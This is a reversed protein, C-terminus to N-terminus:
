PEVRLFKGPRSPDPVYWQGDPAKRAQSMDPGAAAAPAAPAPAPAPSAPPAATPPAAPAPVAATQPQGGLMYALTEDAARRQDEPTKYLPRGLHDTAKQAIVFARARLDAPNPPKRGDAMELVEADSKDPYAAKYLAIKQQFVSTHGAGSATQRGEGRWFQAHAQKQAIDAQKAEIDLKQLLQTQQDRNSWFDPPVNIGARSAAEQAAPIHGLKLYTAMDRAAAEREQLNRQRITEGQGALQMRQQAGLGPAAAAQDYAEPTPRGRAYLNQLADTAAREQGQRRYAEDLQLDRLERARADDQMRMGAQFGEVAPNQTLYQVM